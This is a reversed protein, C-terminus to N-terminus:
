IAEECRKQLFKELGHSELEQNFEEPDDILVIVEDAPDFYILNEDKARDKVDTSVHERFYSPEVDMMTLLGDDSVWASVFDPLELSRVRSLTDSRRNTSESSVSKDAERKSSGSSAFDDLSM